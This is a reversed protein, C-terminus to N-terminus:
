LRIWDILFVCLLASSVTIHGDSHGTALHNGNPSFCLDQVGSRLEQKSEHCYEVLRSRFPNLYVPDIMCLLVSWVQKGAETNYVIVKGDSLGSVEGSIGVAIYRGDLSFKLCQVHEGRHEFAGAITVDLM